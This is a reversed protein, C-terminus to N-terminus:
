RAADKERMAFFLALPSIALSIWMLLRFCDVYCLM